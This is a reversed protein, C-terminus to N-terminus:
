LSFSKPKTSSLKASTLSSKIATNYIVTSCYTSYLAVNKVGNNWIESAGSGYSIMRNEDVNFWILGPIKHQDPYAGTLITSDIAVSMTPYSSVIDTYFQGNNILFSFAPANGEGIAKQLPEIMLSDVTILIIPKKPTDVAIDDIDKTPSMSIGLVLLVGVFMLLILAFFVKRKM